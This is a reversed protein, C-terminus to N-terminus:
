GNPGAGYRGQVSVSNSRHGQHDRLEFVFTARDPNACPLDIHDARASGWCQGDPECVMAVTGLGAGASDLIQVADERYAEITDPGQPDDAVAALGWWQGSDDDSYCWADAELIVPSVDDNFVPDEDPGTDDDPLWIDDSGPPEGSFSLYGPPGWCASLSALIAAALLRHM